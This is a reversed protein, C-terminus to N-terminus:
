SDIYESDFEDVKRMDFYFEILSWVIIMALILLTFLFATMYTM